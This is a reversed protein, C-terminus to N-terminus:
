FLYLCLMRAYAGPLIAGQRGGNNIGIAFSVNSRVPNRLREIAVQAGFCEGQVDLGGGIGRRWRGRLSRERRHAM